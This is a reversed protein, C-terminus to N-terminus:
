SSASSMRYGWGPDQVFCFLGKEHWIRSRTSGSRGQLFEVVLLIRDVLGGVGFGAGSIAGEILGFFILSVLAAGVTCIVGLLIGGFSLAARGSIYAIGDKIELKGEGKMNAIEAGQVLSKTFFRCHAHIEEPSGSLSERWNEPDIGRSVLLSHAIERMGDSSSIGLQKEAYIGLLQKDTQSALRQRMRALDPSDPNQSGAEHRDVPNQSPTM